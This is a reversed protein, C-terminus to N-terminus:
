GVPFQLIKYLFNTIYQRLPSVQRTKEWTQEESLNKDCGGCPLSVAVCIIGSSIIATALGITMSIPHGTDDRFQFGEESNGEGAAYGLWAAIGIILGSLTGSIVGGGTIRHWTISLAIPLVCSGTLLATFQLMWPLDVDIANIILSAILLCIACSLIVFYNILVCRKDYQTFEDNRVANKMKM